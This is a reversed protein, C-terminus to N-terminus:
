RMYSVKSVDNIKRLKRIRRIKAKRATEAKWIIVKKTNKIPCVKDSVINLWRPCFRNAFFPIKMLGLAVVTSPPIPAIIMVLLVGGVAHKVITDKNQM